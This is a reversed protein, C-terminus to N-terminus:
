DDPQVGLKAAKVEDLIIRQTMEYTERAETSYNQTLRTLDHGLVSYTIRVWLLGEEFVQFFARQPFSVEYNPIDDITPCYLHFYIKDFLPLNNGIINRDTSSLFLDIRKCRMMENQIRQVCAIQNNFYEIRPGIDSEILPHRGNSDLLIVRLDTM